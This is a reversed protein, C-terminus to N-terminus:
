PTVRGMRWSLEHFREIYKQKATRWDWNQIIVGLPDLGYGWPAETFLQAIEDTVIRDDYQKVAPHFPWGAGFKIAFLRNLKEHAEQRFWYAKPFAAHIANKVPRIEDGFAFEPADHLLGQMCIHPPYGDRELALSILTCHEAVTYDDEPAGAYRQAKAIHHAIVDIGILTVDPDLPFFTHGGYTRMWCKNGATETKECLEAEAEECKRRLWGFRFM